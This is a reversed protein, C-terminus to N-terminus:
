GIWVDLGDITKGEMVGGTAGFLVAAGTSEGMPDDLPIGKLSAVHVKNLRYM